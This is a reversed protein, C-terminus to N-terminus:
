NANNKVQILVLAVMIFTVIAFVMTVFMQNGAIRVQDPIQKMTDM